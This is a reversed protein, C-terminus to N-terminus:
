AHQDGCESAQTFWHRSKLDDRVKQYVWGLNYQAICDGNKALPLLTRIATPFNGEAIALAAAATSKSASVSTSFLGFVIAFVVAALRNPM